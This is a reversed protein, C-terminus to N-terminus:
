KWRRSIPECGAKTPGCGRPAPRKQAGAQRASPARPRRPLVAGERAPPRGVDSCQCTACSVCLRGLHSSAHARTGHPRRRNPRGPGQHEKSVYLHELRSSVSRRRNAMCDTAVFQVSLRISHRYRHRLTAVSEAPHLAVRIEVRLPHPHPTGARQSWQQPTGARQSWQQPTIARQSWQQPTIARQAPRSRASAGHWRAPRTFASRYRSSRPPVALPAIRRAPRRPSPLPAALCPAALCPAALPRRPLTSKVRILRRFM